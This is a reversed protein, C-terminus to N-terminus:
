KLGGSLSKEWNKFVPKVNQSKLFNIFEKTNRKDTTEFQQGSKINENNWQGPNTKSECSMHTVGTFLSKNRFTQNERTSIYIPNTKFIIRFISILMFYQYNSLNYPQKFNIGEVNIRPFSIGICSKWYKTELYEIHKALLYSEYAINNLGFLPGLNVNEINANLVREPTELRYRYDSKEGKLHYKSYLDKDYCEQYITVGEIGSNKFEDYQDFSQFEIYIMDFYKKVISIANLYYKKNTKNSSGSVLLIQDYGKEKIKICEKEIQIDNLCLRTISNNANYGCYSCENMCLNSLYMPTYLSITDGFYQKKIDYSYSIFKKLLDLNSTYLLSPIMEIQNKKNSNIFDEFNIDRFITNINLFWNSKECFTYFSKNMYKKM